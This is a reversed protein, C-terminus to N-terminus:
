RNELQRKLMGCFSEFLVTDNGKLWRVIVEVHEVTKRQKAQIRFGLAAEDPDEEDDIPNKNQPDQSRRRRRAARSWVNQKAFGVGTMVAPRWQWQIGLSKMSEDIRQAVRDFSHDTPSFMFESPFPLFHKPLGPIGRAVDKDGLLGRGSRRVKLLPSVSVMRPRMDGWSWAVAWRRTKSGQVFETVAWNSVGISKLKEVIMAVSAIKGLMSTYWEVRDRLAISEQIMRSVFEVEGGPTVMEVEAGTCASFPPRQKAKASVLM